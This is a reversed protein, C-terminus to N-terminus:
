RFSCDAFTVHTDANSVLMQASGLSNVENLPMHLHLKICKCAHLRRWSTHRVHEAICSLRGLLLRFHWRYMPRSALHEFCHRMCYVVTACRTSETLTKTAVISRGWVEWATNTCRKCETRKICAMSVRQKWSCAICTHTYLERISCCNARRGAASIPRSCACGLKM